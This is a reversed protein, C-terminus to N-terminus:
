RMCRCAASVAEARLEESMARRNSCLLHSQVFETPGEGVRRRWSAEGPRECRQPSGLVVLPIDSVGKRM